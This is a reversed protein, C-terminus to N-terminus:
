VQKQRWVQKPVFLDESLFEGQKISAIILRMMHFPRLAQQEPM